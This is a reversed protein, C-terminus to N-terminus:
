VPWSNVQSPSGTACAYYNTPSVTFTHEICFRLWVAQLVGEIQFDQIRRDAPGKGVTRADSTDM